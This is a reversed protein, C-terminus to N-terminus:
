EPEEIEIEVEGEGGCETCRFCKAADVDIYELHHGHGKCSECIVWTKNM